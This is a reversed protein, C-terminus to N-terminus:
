GGGREGAALVSGPGSGGLTVAGAASRTGEAQLGAGALDRRLGGSHASATGGPTPPSPVGGNPGVDRGPIRTGHDPGLPLPPWWPRPGRGLM